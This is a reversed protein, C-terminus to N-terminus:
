SASITAASALLGFHIWSFALITGDTAQFTICYILTGAWLGLLAASYRTKNRFGSRVRLWLSVFFGALMMLGLIGADHLVRIPLIGVWTARDEGTIFHGLNSTLQLSNAGNGIVLHGPIDKLAELITAYRLLATDDALGSSILETFRQRLIGGAATTGLAVALLSLGVVVFALKRTRIRNGSPKVRLFMWGAVLILAFMAARSFSLFVALSTVLFGALALGRSRELTNFLALFGVASAAAYAGFLNPEVITGYPVAIEGYQGIAMGFTTNFLQYSLYSALGYCSEAFGVALLIYFTKKLAAADRVLARIIFYPIIALFSQLAWKVTSAPEPSAFASSFVTMGVYGLIWYDLSDLRVNAKRLLLSFVFAISILGVAIHEPHANLGFLEFQFGSGASMAFLVVFAGYPWEVVTSLIVLLGVTVGAVWGIDEVWVLRALVFTAVVAGFLDLRQVTRSDWISTSRVEAM